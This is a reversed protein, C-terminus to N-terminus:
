GESRWELVAAAGPCCLVRRPPVGSERRLVESREDLFRVELCFRMGFTHVSTCGPLLLAWHRPIDELLTLGLLRARFSRAVFVRTGADDTHVELRRLRKPGMGRSPVAAGCEGRRM